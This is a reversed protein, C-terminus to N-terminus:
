QLRGSSALPEGDIKTLEYTMLGYSTSEELRLLILHPDDMHFYRDRKQDPRKLTSVIVSVEGGGAIPTKFKGERFKQRAQHDAGVPFLLPFDAMIPATAIDEEALFGGCFMGLNTRQVGSTITKQSTKGDFVTTVHYDDGVRLATNKRTLGAAEALTEFTVAGEEDCILKAEERYHFPTDYPITYEIESLVSLRRGRQTDIPEFSLEATGIPESHDELLIRYELRVADLEKLLQAEAGPVLAGPLALALLSRKSM